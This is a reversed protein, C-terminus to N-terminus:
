VRQVRGQRWAVLGRAELAALHKDMLAEEAATYFDLPERPRGYAIWAEVIEQKARPQGLFELLRTERQAFVAVFGDWLPGPPELFVGPGHSALWVQAPIRRLREVSAKIQEMDAAPDGYWPGWPNLDYDGLFLAQCPQFWFALSGPTHGPAAVVQASIEGLDIMQGERLHGAPWRPRFHFRRAMIERWHERSAPKDVGGWDLFTELDGLPPADEAAMFLPLDDFLDLNRFHDEHWHSLWVQSVGEEERLRALRERGAGPDILVRAGEVYLSNCRPYRAQKPAPILRLAGFRPEPMDM